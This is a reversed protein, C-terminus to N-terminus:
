SVLRKLMNEPQLKMWKSSTGKDLISGPVMELTAIFGLPQPSTSAVAWAPRRVHWATRMASVEVRSTSRCGGLSDSSRSMGNSGGSLPQQQQNLMQKQDLRVVLVSM